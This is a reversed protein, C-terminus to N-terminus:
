AKQIERFLWARAYQWERKVTAPSTALMEATEEVSLGAFFRLRVLAALKPDESEMRSLAADLSLIEEPKESQALDAVERLEALGPRRSGDRGDGGRKQALKARAHDILVRRMAQAAAAYFHARGDFRIEPGPGVLRVYAEHVLATATLTHGLRESRMAQQAASRLQEYVLPLLSEAAQRDGAAARDLMRTLEDSPM